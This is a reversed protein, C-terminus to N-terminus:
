MPSITQHTLPVPMVPIHEGEIISEKNNLSENENISNQDYGQIESFQTQATTAGKFDSNQINLSKLDNLM